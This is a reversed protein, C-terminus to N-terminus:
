GPTTATKLANDFERRLLEGTLVVPGDAGVQAYVATAPPNRHGLRLVIPPHDESYLEIVGQPPALGYDALTESTVELLMIETLEQLSRLFTDLVQPHAVGAWGSPDRAVQVELDNRRLHIVGIADPDFQLLRNLNETLPTTRPVMSRARLAPSTGSTLDFYAYCTAVLLAAALVLTGRWSM